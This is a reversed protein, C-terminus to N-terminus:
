FDSRHFCVSPDVVGRCGVGWGRQGPCVGVRAPEIFLSTVLDGVGGGWGGQM